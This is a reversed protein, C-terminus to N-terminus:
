FTPFTKFVDDMGQEVLERATVWKAGGKFFSSIDFVNEMLSKQTKDFIGRWLISGDATKVLHIEFVVSAPRESSYGYGIREVFRYVYGVAVSDAGLENGVKRLTDEFTGNQKESSIRKYVSQVKSAPILEIGELENLKNIFVEEVIQESGKLIKGGSSVTGCFPCRVANGTGAEPTVVQFSIVAIRNIIKASDTNEEAARATVSLALFVVLVFKGICHYKKRYYNLLINVESEKIGIFPILV